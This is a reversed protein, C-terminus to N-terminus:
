GSNIIKLPIFYLGPGPWIVGAVPGDGAGPRERASSGTGAVQWEEAGPGSEAGQGPSVRGM